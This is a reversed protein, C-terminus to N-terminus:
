GVKPMHKTMGPIPVPETMIQPQQSTPCAPLGPANFVGLMEDNITRRKYAIAVGPNAAALQQMYQMAIDATAHATTVPPNTLLTVHHEQTVQTATM